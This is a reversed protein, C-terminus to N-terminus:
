QGSSNLRLRKSPRENEEDTDLIEIPQTSKPTSTIATSINEPVIATASPPGLESRFNSLTSSSSVESTVSGETSTSSAISENKQITINLNSSDTSFDLSVESNKSNITSSDSASTHSPRHQKQVRKRKKGIAKGTVGNIGDSAEIWLKKTNDFYQLKFEKSPNIIAPRNEETKIVKFFSYFKNLVFFEFSVEATTTSLFTTSKVSKCHHDPLNKQQKAKETTRYVYHLPIWTSHQQQSNNKPKRLM